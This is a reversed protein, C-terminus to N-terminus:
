DGKAIMKKFPNPAASRTCSNPSRGLKLEERLLGDDGLEVFFKLLVKSERSPSEESSWPLAHLQVM